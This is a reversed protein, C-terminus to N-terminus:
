AIKAKAATAKIGITKYLAKNEIRFGSRAAEYVEIAQADTLMIEEGKNMRTILGVAEDTANEIFAKEKAAEKMKDKLNKLNHYVPGPLIEGTQKAHAHVVKWLTLAHNANSQVLSIAAMNGKTNAVHIIAELLCTVDANDNLINENYISRAQIKIKSKTNLAEIIDQEATILLHEDEECLLYAANSSINSTGVPINAEAEIEEMDAYSTDSTAPLAVVGCFVEVAEEWQNNITEGIWFNFKNSVLVVRFSEGDLDYGKEMIEGVVSPFFEKEYCLSKTDMNYKAVLFSAYRLGVPFGGKMECVDELDYHYTMKDGNSDKLTYWRGAKSLRQLVVLVGSNAVYGNGSTLEDERLSDVYLALIEVHDPNKYDMGAPFLDKHEKFYAEVYARRKDASRARRARDMEKEHFDVDEMTVGLLAKAAEEDVDGMEAYLEAKTLHTALSSMKPEYRVLDKIKIAAKKMSDGKNNHFMKSLKNTSM